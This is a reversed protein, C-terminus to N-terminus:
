GNVKSEIYYDLLKSIPVEFNKYINNVKIYDELTDVTVSFMGLNKNYFNKIFDIKFENENQYYYSTVHEKNHSNLNNKNKIVLFSKATFVEVGSGVPINKYAVYDLKNEQLYKVGNDIMKPETLPNDATIRVAIDANTISIVQAFREFVNELSGRYCKINNKNAIEEILDDEINTSTAIYIEDLVSSLQVREIVRELLTKGKINLMAKAPLRSSSIRAQIIGVVKVM